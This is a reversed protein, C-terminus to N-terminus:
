LRVIQSNLCLRLRLREGATRPKRLTLRLDATRATSHPHLYYEFSYYVVGHEVKIMLVVM